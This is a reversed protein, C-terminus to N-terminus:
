NRLLSSQLLVNLFFIWLFHVVQHITVGFCRHQRMLSLRGASYFNEKPAGPTAIKVGLSFSYRVELAMTSTQRNKTKNNKVNAQKQLKCLHFLESHIISAAYNPSIRTTHLPLLKMRMAINHVVNYICQFKDMTNMSMPNNISPLMWPIFTPQFLGMSTQQYLHVNRKPIYRPTLDSHWLIHHVGKSSVQCNELM